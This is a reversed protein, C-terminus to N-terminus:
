APMSRLSEKSLDLGVASIFESRALLLKFNSLTQETFHEALRPIRSAPEPRSNLLAEELTDAVIESGLRKIAEGTALLLKELYVTLIPELKEATGFDKIFSNRATLIKPFIIPQDKEAIADLSAAALKMGTLNELQAVNIPACPAFSSM